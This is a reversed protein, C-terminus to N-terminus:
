LVLNHDVERDSAQPRGRLLRTTGTQRISAATLADISLRHQHQMGPHEMDSTGRSLRSTSILPNAGLFPPPTSVRFTLPTTFTIYTRWSRWVRLCLVLATLWFLSPCRLTKLNILESLFLTSVQM